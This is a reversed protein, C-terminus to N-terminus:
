FPRQNASEYMEAFRQANAAEARYDIESYILRGFDDIVSM